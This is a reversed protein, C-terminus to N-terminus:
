QRRCHAHEHEHTHTNAMYGTTTHATCSNISLPSSEGFKVIQSSGVLSKFYKYFDTKCSETTQIGYQVAKLVWVLQVWQSSTCHAQQAHDLGLIKPVLILWLLPNGSVIRNVRETGASGKQDRCGASCIPMNKMGPWSQTCVIGHKHQHITRLSTM